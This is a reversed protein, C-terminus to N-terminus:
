IVINKYHPLHPINGLVIKFSKTIECVRKSQSVYANLKDANLTKHRSSLHTYIDMTTTVTSHGLYCQSTKVDVGAEYLITAYTHRFQHMTIHEEQYGVCNEKM